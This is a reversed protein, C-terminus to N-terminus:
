FEFCKNARQDIFMMLLLCMIEQYSDEEYKKRWVGLSEGIRSHWKQKGIDKSHIETAEQEHRKTERPEVSFM